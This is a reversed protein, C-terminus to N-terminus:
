WTCFANRSSVGFSVNAVTDQIHEDAVVSSVAETLYDKASVKSVDDAFVSQLYESGRERVSDWTLADGLVRSTWEVAKGTFEDDDFLNIVAAKLLQEVQEGTRPDSLVEHVM